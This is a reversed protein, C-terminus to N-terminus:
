AGPAAPRSMRARKSPGAAAEPSEDRKRRLGGPRDESNDMAVLDTTDDPVVPRASRPPREKGGTPSENDTTAEFPNPIRPASPEIFTCIKQKAASVEPTQRNVWGDILDSDDVM